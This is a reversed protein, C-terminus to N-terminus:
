GCTELSGHMDGSYHIALAYGDDKGLRDLLPQEDAKAAGATQQATVPITNILAGSLLIAFVFRAATQATKLV